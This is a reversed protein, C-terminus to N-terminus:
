TYRGFPKPDVKNTSNQLSGSQVSSDQVLSSQYSSALYLCPFVWLLMGSVGGWANGFALQSVAAVTIGVYSADTVDRSRLGRRLVAAFIAAAGGVFYLTGLIGFSYLVAIIGSDLNQLTAKQASLSSAVGTSGLGRGLPNGATFEPLSTYLELRENFSTDSELDTFSQLRKSLLEAVPGVTFVPVAVLVLLFLTGLLRTRLRLPLSAAVVVFGVVWGAWSARVAALAFGLFGAASGLVTVLGGRTFVLLLGAMMVAAFPGPSNLTSFVRVQLPESAGISGLGANDMWYADWAPLYFYQVAAYLGMMLLGWVFARRTVERFAAILHAHTLVYAGVIVPVGWTLLDFTATVPGNYLVGVGYAYLLGAAVFALPLRVARPLESLRALVAFLALGSVLFPTLMVPSSDTYGVRFDVLRRVEPTLFWVWWTFGLYLAPRRWLLLAATLLAVLPYGFQVAPALPGVFGAAGVGVTALLSAYALRDLPQTRTM